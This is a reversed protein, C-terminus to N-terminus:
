LVGERTTRRIGVHSILTRRLGDRVLQFLGILLLLWVIAPVAITMVLTFADVLLQALDTM